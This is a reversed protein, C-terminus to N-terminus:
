EFREVDVGRDLTRDYVELVRDVTVGQSLEAVAARGNSREERRLIDALGDVLETDSTSVTSPEVGDLRERVDGVDLAVVPLNCALAEKVATPSGERDSTLVLADAANMYVPVTEHDVGHVVQLNVPRDLRSDVAEVVRKARPYNKVTRDPSYPFLVHYEDSAWGVENRARDRDTPRFRDLDIGFPIVECDGDLQRRMQDTMVIVEDCRPACVRTLPGVPGALDSGWLTLVVPLRRQALAMPATLGYHAHLLDYGNRGERIVEPFFRLYDTVSRSETASVHGPVSRCDISVGRRELEDIQQTLFPAEDYTTLALVDM